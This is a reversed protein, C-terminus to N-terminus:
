KKKFKFLIFSAHATSLEYRYPDIKKIRKKPLLDRYEILEFGAELGTMILTEYTYKHTELKGLYGLDTKQPSEDFYNGYFKRKGNKLKVVKIMHENNQNLMAFIPHQTTFVFEGNKKLIRHVERFLQKIKSIYHIALSSYVLDYKSSKEKLKKNMDHVYFTTRPIKQNQSFQVLTPSIDFGVLKKFGKKSLKKAHDGFGCGMDLITKNKVDGLSKLIGPVEIDRNYDLRSHDKRREYYIQAIKNYKEQINQKL